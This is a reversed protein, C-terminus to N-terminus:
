ATVDASFAPSIKAEGISLSALNANSSAQYPGTIKISGNSPSVAFNDGLSDDLPSIIVNSLTLATGGEAVDLAKFSFSYSATKGSCGTDLLRIVGDAGPAAGQLYQLKSADYKLTFDVIAIEASASINVTITVDKGKEVTASTVSINATGAAKVPKPGVVTLAMMLALLVAAARNVRKTGNM